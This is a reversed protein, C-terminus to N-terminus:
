ANIISEIYEKFEKVLNYKWVVPGREYEDFSRMAIINNNEPFLIKDGYYFVCGMMGGGSEVKTGLSIARNLYERFLDETVETYMIIYISNNITRLVINHLLMGSNIRIQYNERVNYYKTQTRSFLYSNIGM